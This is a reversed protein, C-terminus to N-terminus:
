LAAASSQRASGQRSQQERRRQRDRGQAELKLLLSKAALGGAFGTLQGNAGIVRHCPAIISVPNRGNAAGVARAAGPRGIQRAIESYSRTEGFPIEILAKWVKKQFETGHFDLAIHFRDVKGSFYGNLQRQAELLVPHRSEERLSGLTGLRVRKPDDNEWLIAVMGTESAVLKLLGVPSEMTCYAYIREPASKASHEPHSANNM